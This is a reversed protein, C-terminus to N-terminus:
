LIHLMLCECRHGRRQHLQDARQVGHDQLPHRVPRRHRLPLAPPPVRPVQPQDQVPQPPAAPAGQPVCAPGRGAGAAQRLRRLPHGAPQVGPQLAHLVVPHDDDPVDVVGRVRVAGRLGELDLGVVVGAAPHARLPLGGPDGERSPVASDVVDSHPLLGATTGANQCPTALLCVSTLLFDFHVLITATAVFGIFHQVYIKRDWVGWIGSWGAGLVRRRAYVTFLSMDAYVCTSYWVCM